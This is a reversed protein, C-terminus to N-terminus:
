LDSENGQGNEDYGSFKEKRRRSDCVARAICAKRYPKPRNSFGCDVSVNVLVALIAIRLLRLNVSLSLSLCVCLCVCSLLMPRCTYRALM